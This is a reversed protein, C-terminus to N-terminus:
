FWSTLATLDTANPLGYINARRHLVQIKFMVAKDWILVHNRKEGHVNNELRLGTNLLDEERHSHSYRFNYCSKSDFCGPLLSYFM